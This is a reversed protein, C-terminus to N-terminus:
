SEVGSIEWGYNILNNNESIQIILFSIKITYPRCFHCIEKRKKKKKQSLNRFSILPEGQQKGDWAEWLGQRSADKLALIRCIGLSIWGGFWLQSPQLQVVSGCTALWYSPRHGLCFLVIEKKGSSPIMFSLFILM